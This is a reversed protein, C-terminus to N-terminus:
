NGGVIEILEGSKATAIARKTAVVPIGKAVAIQELTELAIRETDGSAISSAIEKAAVFPALETGGWGKKGAMIDKGFLPTMNIVQDTAMELLDDEDEPLKKNTIMWILMANMSIALIDGAVRQFDENKWSAYTDYTAVNYIQNLQQTFVLFWNFVENKTYLEAIDKASATPQTRLTSNQAERIAEAESMGNALEKEYVANWGISRIVKDVFKIGELGAQGYKSIFKDWPKGGAQELEKFERAIVNTRTQPDLSAVKDLLARPDSVFEGMSSILANAGADKMYLALSPAQKLVTLLNYSLYAMAMNGRLRRSLMELDGFGKYVNPNAVRKVYNELIRHGSPGLVGNISKKLKQSSLYGNLDKILAAFHIYHEQKASQSRWVSVLRIDIPGQNEPAINEREITFGKEAQSRRLGERSLLQDVIDQHSAQGGILMRVIPTYFAEKKLGTNTFEIHAGLLRDFNSDYDEIIFDALEIFKTNAINGVIAQAQKKSLRMSNLLAETARENKLAAYVGMIQEIYLQLGDRIGSLDVIEALDGEDVGLENMKERLAKHRRDTEILEKNTQENVRDYFLQHM